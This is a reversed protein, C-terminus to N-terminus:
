DLENKIKDYTDIGDALAANLEGYTTDNKDIVKDGAEISIATATLSALANVDGKFASGDMIAGVTTTSKVEKGDEATSNFVEIATVLTKANAKTQSLKASDTYGMMRPAIIAVLIGLIAIVAILEILTFGKKKKNKLMNKKM